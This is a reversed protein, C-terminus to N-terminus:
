SPDASKEKEWVYTISKERSLFVYKRLFAATYAM